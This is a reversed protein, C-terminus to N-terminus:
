YDDKYLRERREERWADVGLRICFYGLILMIIAVLIIAIDV